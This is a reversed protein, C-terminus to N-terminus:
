EWDNTHLLGLYSQKGDNASFYINYRNDTQASCARYLDASYFDGDRGSPTLIIGQENWEIGDNSSYWRIAQTQLDYGLMRYIGDQFQVDIHWPIIASENFVCQIANYWQLGDKSEIVRVGRNHKWNSADIYWCRYVGHQYVISPSIIQEGWILQDRKPRLDAVLEREAWDIGNHSTRRYLLTMNTKVDGGELVSFRYYLQLVGDVMVLHPDSYYDKAAIEADTLEEVPHTM